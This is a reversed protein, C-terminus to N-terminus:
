NNLHINVHCGKLHLVLHLHLYTKQAKLINQHIIIPHHM